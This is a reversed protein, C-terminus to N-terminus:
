HKDLCCMWFTNDLLKIRLLHQSCARHSDAVVDAVATALDSSGVLQIECHIDRGVDGFFSSLEDYLEYLVVGVHGYDVALGVVVVRGAQGDGGLAGSGVAVSEEVVGSGGSGM